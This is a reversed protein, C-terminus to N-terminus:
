NEFQSYQQAMGRDYIKDYERDKNIDKIKIQTHAVYGCIRTKPDILRKSKCKQSYIKFKLKLSLSNDLMEEIIDMIIRYYRM